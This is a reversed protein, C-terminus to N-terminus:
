PERHTYSGGVLLFVSNRLNFLYLNTYRSRIRM